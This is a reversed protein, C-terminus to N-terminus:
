HMKIIFQNLSHEMMFKEKRELITKYRVKEEQKRAYQLADVLWRFQGAPDGDSTVQKNRKYYLITNLVIIRLYPSAKV